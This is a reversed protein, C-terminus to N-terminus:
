LGRAPGHSRRLLRRMWVWGLASGLAYHPFDWWSFTTGLLARGLFTARIQVLVWPHWLQLVELGCTVLFVGVAIRTVLRSAPWFLFLVLCWFIEYLVGAAYNNAWNRGPGAYSKLLFGAPTIFLLSLVIPRRTGM